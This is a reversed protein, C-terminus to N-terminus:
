SRSNLAAITARVDCTATAVMNNNKMKPYKNLVFNPHDVFVFNKKVCKNYM